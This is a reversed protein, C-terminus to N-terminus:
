RTRKVPPFKGSRSLGRFHDIRVVDFLTLTRCMREVWWAYGTERLADWNYVPNGWLQGTSSFYDPPVGAVATPRQEEDLKFIAANAWADASDYSVYIPIDGLIQIGRQNCYKKLAGWQRFFLYQRFKEREIDVRSEKRIVETRDSVRSRLERPWEGWSTGGMRKKISVFLAYTDLWSAHDACFRVFGDHDVGSRMFRDYALDLLYEKYSTVGEYDCRDDPFAPRGRSRKKTWSVM